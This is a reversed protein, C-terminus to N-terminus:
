MFLTLQWIQYDFIVVAWFFLKIHAMMPLKGYIQIQCDSIASKAFNTSKIPPLPFPPGPTTPHHFPTKSSFHVPTPTLHAPPLSFIQIKPRFFYPFPPPPPPTNFGPHLTPLGSGTGGGIQHYHLCSSRSLNWINIKHYKRSLYIM